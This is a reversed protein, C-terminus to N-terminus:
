TFCTQLDSSTDSYSAFTKQDAQITHIDVCQEAKM